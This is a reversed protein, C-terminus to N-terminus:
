YYLDDKSTYALRNVVFAASLACILMGALVLGVLTLGIVTPNFLSYLLASSRKVYLLILGLITSKFACSLLFLVAQVAAAIFVCRWWLKKDSAPDGTPSLISM